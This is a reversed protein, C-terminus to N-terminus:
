IDEQYVTKGCAPCTCTYYLDNYHQGSKYESKDAEFVCHCYKCVFRKTEKLLELNGQKLIKMKTRRKLPKVFM